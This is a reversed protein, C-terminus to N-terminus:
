VLQRRCRLLPQWSCRPQGWHGGSQLLHRNADTIPLASVPAGTYNRVFVHKCFPAYGDVLPAGQQCHAEHVRQVFDEKDVSLRTGAYEQLLPTAPTPPPPMIPHIYLHKTCCCPLLLLLFGGGAAATAAAAAYAIPQRVPGAHDCRTTGSGRPLTTSSSSTRTFRWPACM